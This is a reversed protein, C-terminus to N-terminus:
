YVQVFTKHARGHMYKFIYHMSLVEWGIVIVRQNGNVVLRLKYESHQPEVAYKQPRHECRPRPDSPNEWDWRNRPLKDCQSVVM